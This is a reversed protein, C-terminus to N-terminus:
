MCTLYANGIHVDSVRSIYIRCLDRTHRSHKTLTTIRGPWAPDCSENKISVWIDVGALDIITMWIVEGALLLVAMWIAQGALGLAAVCIDEGAM